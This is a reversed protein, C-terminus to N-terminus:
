TSPSSPIFCPTSSVRETRGVKRDLGVVDVVYPNRVVAIFVIFFLSEFFLFRM